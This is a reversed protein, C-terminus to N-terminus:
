KGTRVAPPQRQPPPPPTGTQKTRNATTGQGQGTPEAALTDLDQPSPLGATTTIMQDLGMPVPAAGATRPAVSEIAGPVPRGDAGVMDAALAASAAGPLQDLPLPIPGRAAGAASEATTDAALHPTPGRSGIAGDGSTSITITVDANM